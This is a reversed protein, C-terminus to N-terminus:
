SNTADIWAVTQAIAADASSARGADVAGAAAVEGLAQRCHAVTGDYMEQEGFARPTAIAARLADAAGCLRAALEHADSEVMLTTMAELCLAIEHLNGFDRADALAERYHIRAGKTDGLALLAAGLHRLEELEFERVGFERATALAREHMRQAEAFDGRRMALYGLHSMTTAQEMPNNLERGLALARALPAESEAFQGRSIALAAVNNLVRAEMARNGTERHIVVAQELYTQAAAEDAQHIAVGGLNSLVRGERIQDGLDRCLALALELQSRAGTIDGLRWTLTGSAHLAKARARTGTHGANRALAADCWQRGEIAHGRHAWFRYLAGTLRLDAEDGAPDDLSWGLAARLNDHEQELHSLWAPQEAGGELHPEADEALGLFYDCHRQRVAVSEGREQLRDRAYDRITELMRYRTGDGDPVILSKNALGTLLDLVAAPVLDRDACVEEAAPLSLGGAFVSLRAFLTKEAEGLLDYSWDILARLTQQRPLAARAGGTLLRFRDHLREAIAEVTLVGVRAAALELALPIGDLRACIQAVAKVNRESLAFAPQRLRAREVFLRGADSREADAASSQPDPLALPPLPYTQEGAVNLAERSSALVRADPAARLLADVLSACADVLHECNDLVLLLRRSACHACLAQVLPTNADEQLGLAHAVAKPVLAPDVISALEIFWVGDPCADIAAAAIHLTLRTKGIGGPGVITVLRAGGLLAAAEALERDRGIFSTMQRPLNNPNAELSRLAPFEERLGPQVVQYVHTAGALDRLRVSGLDRLAVTVPLRGALLDAGSQSVLIQGGHAANMIRAAQHVPTGFYDGDRHEVAGVHLACRVLIAIGSTTSSDALAHQISLTAKLGDLPDDFAAYMGDGTTKVITGRNAEVASRLLADHLALAPRMREPHAAWLRTSGEIDTFLLAKVVSADNV